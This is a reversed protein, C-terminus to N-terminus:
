FKHPKTEYKVFQIPYFSNEYPNMFCLGWPSLNIFLTSPGVPSENFFGWSLKCKSGAVKQWGGFQLNSLTIPLYFPPWATYQQHVSCAVHQIGAVPLFTPLGQSAVCLVLGEHLISQEQPLLLSFLLSPVLSFVLFTLPLLACQCVYLPTGTHFENNPTSVLVFPLTNVLICHWIGQKSSFM